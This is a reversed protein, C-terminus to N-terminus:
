HREGGTEVFYGRAAVTVGEVYVDRYNYNVLVSYGNDYTTRYVGNCLKEHDEILAGQVPGLAANMEMYLAIAVDRWRRYEVDLLYDFDTGKLVSPDAAIWRFHLGSGTEVANLVAQRIDSATNLPPGAFDYLGHVVIQYFPVTEDELGHHTSQTPVNVLNRTYPLVYANGGSFLTEIGEDQWIQRCQNEIIARAQQRNVHRQGHFDSSVEAGLDGLSLAGHGYRRYGALFSATLGPLASSSLIYRADRGTPRLTVPDYGSVVAMRGDLLRAADKRENFGNLMGNHTPVELLVVDPFFGVQRDALSGAVRKLQEVSGIAPEIKAKVPYDNVLGRKLWGTYRLKLNSVGADLLDSGIREVDSITTLALPASIPVGLVPKVKTVAGILEVFMALDDSTLRELGYRGILYDRYGKAMGVYDASDGDLFFYRLKIDGRYIEPSYTMVKAKDATVLTRSMTNFTAFAVNYQNQSRAIDARINAVADGDEIVAWWARDGQKLGFVPLCQTQKDYPLAQQMPLSRDTGYVPESYIPYDVRGNNLYILAGSGDPVFIYGEANSDAAGFYKLVDIQYLPRTERKGDERYRVVEGDPSDFDLELEVPVDHPYVVEDMPIRVVLSEGDLTYEVPIEFVELSKLPPELRYAVHDEYMDSVTYGAEALIQEMDALYFPTETNLMYTPSNFLAKFDDQTLDSVSQVDSRGGARDSFGGVLSGAYKALLTWVLKTRDRDYYSIARSLDRELNRMQASDEAEGRSRLDAIQQQLREVAQIRSDLKGDKVTLSHGAFLVSEVSEVSSEDLEPGQEPQWFKWWPREPKPPESYAADPDRELSVLVYNDLIFRRDSESSVRSLIDEMRQQSILHPLVYKIGKYEDGLRYEVRVGSEIPVVSYQGLAVFHNLSDLEVRDSEPTAYAIRVTESAATSRPGRDTPNSYWVTGSRKDLVAIETSADDIYLCLAESEAVCRMRDPVDASKAVAAVAPEVASGAAFVATSAVEPAAVAATAPTAAAEASSATALVCSCCLMIAFAVMVQLSTSRATRLTVRSDM